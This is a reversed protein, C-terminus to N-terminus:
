SREFRWYWFTPPTCSDIHLRYNLIKLIEYCILLCVQIAGAAVIVERRAFATYRTSGGSAPAFEIGSATLPM